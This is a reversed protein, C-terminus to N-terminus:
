REQRRQERGGIGDSGAEGGDKGRSNGSSQKNNEGYCYYVTHQDIVRTLFFIESREKEPDACM